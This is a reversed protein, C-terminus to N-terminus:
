HEQAGRMERLEEPLTWGVEFGVQTCLRTVLEEDWVGDDMCKRRVLVMMRECMEKNELTTAGYVLYRAVWLGFYSLSPDHFTVSHLVNGTGRAAQIQPRLLLSAESFDDFLHYSINAETSYYVAQRHREITPTIGAVPHLYPRLPLTTLGISSASPTISTTCPRCETTYHRRLDEYLHQKSCYRIPTFPGCNPCTHTSPTTILCAQGCSPLRCIVTPPPRPRITSDSASSTPSTTDTAADVPVGDGTAAAALNTVPADVTSKDDNAPPSVNTDNSAATAGASGERGPQGNGEGGSEKSKPEPDEAEKQESKESKDDYIVMKRGNHWLLPSQQEESAIKHIAEITEKFDKESLSEPVIASGTPSTIFSSGNFLRLISAPSQEVREWDKDNVRTLQEYKSQAITQILLSKESVVPAKQVFDLMRNFIHLSLVVVDEFFPQLIYTNAEVLPRSQSVLQREAPVIGFTQLFPETQHSVFLKYTYAADQDSRMPPHFTYGTTAATEIKQIKWGALKSDLEQVSASGAQSEVTGVLRIGFPLRAGATSLSPKGAKLKLYQALSQALVVAATRVRQMAPVPLIIVECFQELYTSAKSAADNQLCITTRTSTSPQGDEIRLETSLTDTEDHYFSRANSLLSASDTQPSATSRPCHFYALNQPQNNVDINTSSRLIEKTRRYNAVEM